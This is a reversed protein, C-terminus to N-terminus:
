LVNCKETVRVAFCICTGKVSHILRGDTSMCKCLLNNLSINKQEKAVFHNILDPLRYRCTSKWNLQCNLRSDLTPYGLLTCFDHPHKTRLLSTFIDQVFCM